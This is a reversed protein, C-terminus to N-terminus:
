RLQIVTKVKKTKKLINLIQFLHCGVFSLINSATSKTFTDISQQIFNVFCEKDKLFIDPLKGFSLNVQVLITEIM